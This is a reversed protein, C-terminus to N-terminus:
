SGKKNFERAFEDLIYETSNRYKKLLKERYFDFHVDELNNLKLNKNKTLYIIGSEPAYLSYVICKNFCSYANACEKISHKTMRKDNFILFLIHVHHPNYVPDIYSKPIIYFASFTIKKNRRLDSFFRKLVADIREIKTEYNKHFNITVFYNWEYDIFSRFSERTTNIRSWVSNMYDKSNINDM